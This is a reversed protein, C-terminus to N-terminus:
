NNHRNKNLVAIYYYNPVINLSSYKQVIDLSSNLFHFMYPISARVKWKKNCPLPKSSTTMMRAM